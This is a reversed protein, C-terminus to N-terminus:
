SLAKYTARESCNGEEWTSVQILNHYSTSQLHSCLYLCFVRQQPKHRPTPYYDGSCALVYVDYRQSHTIRYNAFSALRDLRVIHKPIDISNYLTYIIDKKPFAMGYNELKAILVM